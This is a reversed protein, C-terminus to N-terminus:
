GFCAGVGGGPIHNRGIALPVPIQDDRLDQDVGEFVEVHPIWFRFLVEFSDDDLLSGAIWAGYDPSRKSAVTVAVASVMAGDHLGNVRTEFFGSESFSAVREISRGLGPHDLHDVELHALFHGGSGFRDWRDAEVEVPQERDVESHGDFLGPQQVPSLPLHGKGFEDVVVVALDPFSQPLDETAPFVSPPLKTGLM